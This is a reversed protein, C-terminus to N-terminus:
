ENKIRYFEEAIVDFIEEMDEQSVKGSEVLSRIKEPFNGYKYGSRLIRESFEDLIAISKTGNIADNYEEREEPLNFELTVKM